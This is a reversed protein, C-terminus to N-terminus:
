NVFFCIFIFHFLSHFEMMNYCSTLRAQSGQGFLNSQSSAALLWTGHCHCRWQACALSIAHSLLASNSTGTWLLPQILSQLHPFCFPPSSAPICPHLSSTFIPFHSFTFDPFSFHLSSTLPWSPSSLHSLSFPCSFYASFAFSLVGIVQLSNCQADSHLKLFFALLNLPCVLLLSPGSHAQGSPPYPGLEWFLLSLRFYIVADWSPTGPVSLDHVGEGIGVPNCGGSVWLVRGLTPHCGELQGPYQPLNKNSKLTFLTTTAGRKTNIRDWKSAVIFLKSFREQRDGQSRKRGSCKGWCGSQLLAGLAPFCLTGHDFLECLM